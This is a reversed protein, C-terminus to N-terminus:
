RPAAIRPKGPEPQDWSGPQKANRSGAACPLSRGTLCDALVPSPERDAEADRVATFYDLATMFDGATM